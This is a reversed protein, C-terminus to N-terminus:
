SFCAITDERLGDLFGYTQCGSLGHLYSEVFGRDLSCDILGLNHHLLSWSGETRNGMEPVLGLGLGTTHDALDLLYRRSSTLLDPLKTGTVQTGGDSSACLPTAVILDRNIRYPMISPAKALPTTLRNKLSDITNQQLIAM